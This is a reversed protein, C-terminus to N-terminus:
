IVLVHHNVLWNVIQYAGSKVDLFGVECLFYECCANSQWFFGLKFEFGYIRLSDSECIMNNFCGTALYEINLGIFWFFDFLVFVRVVNIM